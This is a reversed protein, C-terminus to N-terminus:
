VTQLPRRVDPPIPLPQQNTTGRANISATAENQSAANARAQQEIAAHHAFLGGTAGHQTQGIHVVSDQPDRAEFMGPRVKTITGLHEGTGRRQIQKVNGGRGASVKIEPHNGSGSRSYHQKLQDFSAQVRTSVTPQGGKAADRRSREARAADGDPTGAPKIRVAANLDRDSHAAFPSVKTPKHDALRQRLPNVTTIPESQQGGTIEPAPPPAQEVTPEIAMAPRQKVRDRITQKALERSAAAIIADEGSVVAPEPEPPDAAAALTIGIQEVAGHVREHLDAKTQEVAAATVGSYVRDHLAQRAQAAEIAVAATMAEKEDLLEPPLMNEAHLAKARKRIHAYIKKRPSNGHNRLNVANRLETRNRILYSGDPLASGDKAGMDRDAQSISAAAIIAVMDDSASATLGLKKRYDADDHDTDKAAILDNDGDHDPDVWDTPLSSTADLAVARGIIHKKVDDGAGTRDYDDVAAKVHAADEIPYSGDAMADGQKALEAREDDTYQKVAAVVPEDVPESEAPEEIAAVVAPIGWDAPIADAQGLARARTAIYWRSTPHLQAYRIAPDLEDISAVLPIMGSM